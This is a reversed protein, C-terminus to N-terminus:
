RGYFFHFYVPMSAFGVSILISYVYGAGKIWPTLKWHNIGLTQFASQFGHILHLGMLLMALVYLGAYWLHSFAEVVGDYMTLNEAYSGFRFRVFFTNLHLVLFIFVIAGTVGMYRAVGSSKVSYKKRAYSIPRAKKNEVSLRIADAIHFIFGLFLVIEMMRILPNKVMAESYHNFAERGKFLYLNGWLHVVLFTCLFLGSLAMVTKKGISSFLFHM